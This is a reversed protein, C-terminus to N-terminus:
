RNTWMLLVNANSEEASPLRWLDAPLPSSLSFSTPTPFLPLRVILETDRSDDIVNLATLTLTTRGLTDMFTRHLSISSSLLPM